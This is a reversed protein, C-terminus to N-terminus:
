TLLTRKLVALLDYQLHDFFHRLKLTSWGQILHNAWTTQTMKHLLMILFWTVQVGFISLGRSSILIHAHQQPCYALRPMRSALWQSSAGRARALLPAFAPSVPTPFWVRTQTRAPLRALCKNHERHAHIIYVCSWFHSCSFFGLFWGKINSKRFLQISADDGSTQIMINIWTIM